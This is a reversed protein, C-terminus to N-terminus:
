SKEKEYFTELKEILVSLDSSFHKSINKYTESNTIIEWEKRWRDACWGPIGFKGEVYPRNKSMHIGHVPRYRRELDVKERKKVINYLVIEDNDGINIDNINPLPYYSDFRTFHLGTMRETGKRVVNSYNSNNNKMDKLHGVMIEECCVIDIDTIYIYENKIHPTTVFRITNNLVCRGDFKKNVFASYDIKIKCKSFDKKIIELCKEVDTPLEKTCIGIEIDINKNFVLHSLCFIPIYSYYSNDCCTYILLRGNKM